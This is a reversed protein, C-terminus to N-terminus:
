LWCSHNLSRALSCSLSHDASGEMWGTSPYIMAGVWVGAAQECKQNM